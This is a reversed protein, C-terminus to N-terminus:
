ANRRKTKLYALLTPDGTLKVAKIWAADSTPPGSAGTARSPRARRTSSSSPIGEPAPLAAYICGLNGETFLKARGALRYFPCGSADCPHSRLWEMLWRRTVGLKEAATKIPFSTFTM